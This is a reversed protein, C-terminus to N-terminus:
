KLHIRKHHLAAVDGAIDSLNGFGVAFLIEIIRKLEISLEVITAFRSTKIYESLSVLVLEGQDKLSQVLEVLCSGDELDIWRRLLLSCLMGLPSDDSDRHYLRNFHTDSNNFEIKPEVIAKPGHIIPSARCLFGGWSAGTTHRFAITESGLVLVTKPNLKPAKFEENTQVV